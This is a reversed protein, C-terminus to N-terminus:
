KVVKAMIAAYSQYLHGNELQSHIFVSLILAITYFFPFHLLSFTTRCSRDITNSMNKFVTSSDWCDSDTDAM